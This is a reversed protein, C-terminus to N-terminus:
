NIVKLSQSSIIKHSGNKLVLVYTGSALTRTPQLQVLRNTKSVTTQYCVVGLESIIEATLDDNDTLTNSLEIQITKGDSPNPFIIVNELAKLNANRIASHTTKGDKDIQRLRYYNAGVFPNEDLVQYTAPKGLADVVKLDEFKTGNASREVVFKDFNFESKTSWDLQIQRENASLQATFKELEAPLPSGPVYELVFLGNSIDSAIIKGSPLYPYVGWCGDYGSYGSLTPYTDYYGVRVPNAPNSIDYIQVGDFYYALYVLNGKIFPNHVISNTSTPAELASQFTSTQTLDNDNNLTSVDLVRLPTGHTETAVVAYNRDQTVWSSHNYGYYTAKSDLVTFTQTTTRNYKYVYYGNSGHSAYVTDNRAFADHIYGGPLASTKELVPAAPNTLNYVMINYATSANSAGLVYLRANLTDIHINHAKTFGSTISSVLTVSTPLNTLDYVRLGEAGQDASSYAYKKYTKFDRWISSNAHSFTNIITPTAPNTINIFYTNTLGGLIAYENNAADSYGWVDNYQVDTAPKLYGILNTNLSSQGFCATNILFSAIFLYIIKM